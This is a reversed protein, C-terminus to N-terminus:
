NTLLIFFLLDNIENQKEIKNKKGKFVKRETDISNAKKGIMTFVFLFSKRVVCVDKIQSTEM